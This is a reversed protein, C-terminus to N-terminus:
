WTLFVQAEEKFIFDLINVTFEAQTGLSGLVRGGQVAKISKPTEITLRLSALGIQRFAQDQEARTFGIIRSLEQQYDSQTTTAKIAPMAPYLAVLEAFVARNLRLSLTSNGQADQQLDLVQAWFFTNDSPSLTHTFNTQVKYSKNNADYRSSQVFNQSQYRVDSFVMDFFVPVTTETSTVGALIDLDQLYGSFITGTSTLLQVEAQMETPTEILKIHAQQACGVTFLLSVVGCLHYLKTTM